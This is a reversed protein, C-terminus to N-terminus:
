GMHIQKSQFKVLEEASVVTVTGHLEVLSPSELRLHGASTQDLEDVRKISRKAHMFLTGVRASLFEVADDVRDVLRKLVGVNIDVREAQVDIKQSLLTISPFRMEIPASAELLMPQENEFRTIVSLITASQDDAIMCLVVDGLSPMVLCSAAVQSVAGCKIRLPNVDIVTSRLLTVASEPAALYQLETLDM